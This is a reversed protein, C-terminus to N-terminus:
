YSLLVPFWVLGLLLKNIVKWKDHHFLSSVGRPLHFLVSKRSIKRRRPPSTSIILVPNRM